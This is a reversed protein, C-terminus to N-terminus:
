VLRSGPSYVKVTLAEFLSPRQFSVPTETLTIIVGGKQSVHHNLAIAANMTM